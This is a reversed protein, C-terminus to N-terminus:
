TVCVCVCVCVRRRINLGLTTCGARAKRMGAEVKAFSQNQSQRVEPSCVMLYLFEHEYHLVLARHELKVEKLAVPHCCKRKRQPSM